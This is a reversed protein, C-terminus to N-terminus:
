ASYIKAGTNLVNLGTNLYDLPGAKPQSQQLYRSYDDAQTNYDSINQSRNQFGLFSNYAAKTNDNIQGQVQGETDQYGKVAAAKNGGYQSASLQAIYQGRQESLKASLDTLAVDLAPSTARGMMAYKQIVDGKTRNFFAQDSDQLQTDLGSRFKTDQANQYEPTAQLYQQIQYPDAQGSAILTGYHSLEDQTAQRGLTSQVLQGIADYHQPAAAQWEQQQKAYLAAPTNSSAQHLQAVLANGNSVNTIHPDTGVYAPMVQALEDATPDRGFIDTFGKRAWAEADRLNDGPTHPADNGGGGFLSGIGAGVLTGAGPIISGYEAGTTAGSM